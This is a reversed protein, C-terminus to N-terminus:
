WLGFHLYRLSLFALSRLVPEHFHLWLLGVLIALVLGGIVDSLFHMGMSVRSLAVLPAWVWLLVALWAPGLGTALVALLFSRSAHGSPFSEPSRKRNKMSWFGVPRSRDVLKRIPLIVLALLALGLAITIAWQKWFLDGILCVLLLAIWVWRSDGSHSLAESVHRSRKPLNRIRIVDSWAVDRRIISKFDSKLSM